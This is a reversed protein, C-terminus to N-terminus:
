EPFRFYKYRDPLIFKIRICRITCVTDPPKSKRKEPRRSRDPQPEGEEVPVEEELRDLAEAVEVAQACTVRDAADAKFVAVPV